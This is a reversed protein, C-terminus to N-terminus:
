GQDDEDGRRPPHLRPDNWTEGDLVFENATGCAQCRTVVEGSFYTTRTAMGKRRCRKCTGFVDQRAAVDDPHGGYGPSRNFGGGHTKKKKRGSFWSNM